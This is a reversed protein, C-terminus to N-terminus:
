LEGSGNLKLVEGKVASDRAEKWKGEDVQVAALGAWGLAVSRGDYHTERSNHAPQEVLSHLQVFCEKRSDPLTLPADEWDECLAVHLIYIFMCVRVAHISNIESANSCAHCQGHPETFTNM